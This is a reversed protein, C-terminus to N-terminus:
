NSVTLCPGYVQAVGEDSIAEVPGATLWAPGENTATDEKRSTAEAMKRRREPMDGDLSWATGQMFGWKRAGDHEEALQRHLDFSLAGLEAVAPEFWDRALFGGAYGSAGSYLQSSSDIVHVDAEKSASSSNSLHYAISTGIIGGGIIVTTM